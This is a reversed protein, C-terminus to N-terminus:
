SEAADYAAELVERRSRPQDGNPNGLVPRGRVSSAATRSRQLKQANATAQKAAERQLLVKGIESEPDAKHMALARNYVADYGPQLGQRAARDFLDAMDERVDDLFEKDKGWSELSRAENQYVSAERQQALEAKTVFGAARLQNEFQRPDFGSQQGQPPAQGDLAAALSQVDVGYSKILNAVAQAKHPQAGYALTQMVGLAGRVLQTPGQGSGQILAQFPALTERWPVLQKEAEAARTVAVAADRDRRIAEAQVEPPLKAWHERGAAKWGSPPALAKAADTALAQVPPAVVPAGKRATPRVIPAVKATKAFKGTDDRARAPKEEPAEDPAEEAGEQPAAVKDEPEPTEEVPVEPTEEPAEVAEDWAASMAEVSKSM